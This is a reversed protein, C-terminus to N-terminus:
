WLACDNELFFIFIGYFNLFKKFYLQFFFSKRVLIRNQTNARQKIEGPLLKILADDSSDNLFKSYYCGTSEEKWEIGDM